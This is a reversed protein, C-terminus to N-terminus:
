PKNGLIDKFDKSTMVAFECDTLCKVRATRKRNELLAREGFSKGVGITNVLKFSCLEQLKPIDFKSRITQLPM